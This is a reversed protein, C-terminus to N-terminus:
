KDLDGEMSPLSQSQKRWSKKLKSPVTSSASDKRRPLRPSKTAAANAAGTSTTPLGKAEGSKSRLPKRIPPSNPSREQTQTRPSSEWRNVAKPSELQRASASPNPSQPAAAPESQWRSSCTPREPLPPSSPISSQRTKRTIRKVPKRPSKPDRISRMLATRRHEWPKSPSCAAPCCSTSHCDDDDDRLSLALSPPHTLSRRYVSYKNRNGMHHATVSSPSSEAMPPLTRGGRARSHQSRASTFRPSVHSSDGAAMKVTPLKDSLKYQNPYQILLNSPM